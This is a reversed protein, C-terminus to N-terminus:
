KQIILRQIIQEGKDSRLVLLYLGEKVGEINLVITYEGKPRPDTTFLEKVVHGLLDHLAVSVAREDSQIYTLRTINNAPNPTLKVGSLAGGTSPISCYSIAPSEAKNIGGEYVVTAFEKQYFEPLLSVFKPTVEYWLVTATSKDKSTFVRIPIFHNLDAFYTDEAENLAHLAELRQNASHTDRSNMLEKINRTVNLSFSDAPKSLDSDAPSLVNIDVATTMRKKVSFVSATGPIRRNPILTVSQTVKPTPSEFRTYRKQGYIDTVMCPTIEAVTANPPILRSTIYGWTKPFAQLEPQKNREKRLWGVTGDDGVFLGLNALEERTLDLMCAAEIEIPRVELIKQPEDRKKTIVTTVSPTDYRRKPQVSDVAVPPTPQPSQFIPVTGSSQQPIVATLNVAPDKSFLFLATIAAASATIITMLKKSFFIWTQSFINWPRSAMASLVAEDSLLEDTQHRAAAFLDNLRTENPNPSEPHSNTEISM